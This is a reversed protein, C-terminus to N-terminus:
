NKGVMVSLQQNPPTLLAGLRVFFNEKKLAITQLISMNVAQTRAGEHSRSGGSIKRIVAVPRMQREAANNTLPVGDHLLATILQQGQNTIRTQIKEADVARYRRKTITIIKKLFRAQDTAREIPNFPAALCGLLAEYMKKLEEHLATMERSVAPQKVADHSNRLLHAWCSQQELPLHFYAPYDDRVLVGRPHEGLIKDPVGKGRTEEITYAVVTPTLFAWCWGTAGAIRWSTEDAHKLPSSRMEALLRQYEPTLKTSLQQLIHALAGARLHLGYQEALSERLKELPLRLRYKLFLILSLANTGLRFGPLTGAPNGRVERQCDSCHQREIVYKTIKTVAPVVIDEVIREYTSSSRSLLSQCRPCHSLHVTKVEDIRAPKRRGHGTHGRQGGLARRQAGNEPAIPEPKASTKFIMGILKDKTLLATSLQEQLEQKEKKLQENEEVLRENEEILIKLKDELSQRAAWHQTGSRELRATHRRLERAELRLKQLEELM